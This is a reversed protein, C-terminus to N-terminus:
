SLSRYVLYGVALTLVALWSMLVPSTSPAPPPPEPAPVPAVLGSAEARASDFPQGFGEEGEVPRRRPQAAEFALKVLDRGVREAVAIASEEIRSRSAVEEDHAVALAARAVEEAVARAAAEAAPKAAVEAAARVSDQLEARVSALVERSADEMVAKALELSERAVREATEPVGALTQRLKEDAAAAESRRAVEAAEAAQQVMERAVQEAV